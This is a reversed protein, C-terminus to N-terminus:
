NTEDEQEVDDDLSQWEPGEMVMPDLWNGNVDEWEGLFELFGAPLTVAEAVPEAAQLVTGSFLCLLASATRNLKKLGPM